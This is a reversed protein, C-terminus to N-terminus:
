YGRMRRYNAYLAASKEQEDLGKNHKYRKYLQYGGVGAALAGAGLNIKAGTTMDGIISTPVKRKLAAHDGSDLLARLEDIDEGGSQLISRSIPSNLMRKLVFKEPEPGGLGHLDVLGRGASYAGLGTLAGPMIYSARARQEEQKEALKRFVHAEKEQQRRNYAAAGLGTAAIGGGTLARTTARAGREKAIGQLREIDSDRLVMNKQALNENRIAAMREIEPIDEYATGAQLRKEVRDARGTRVRGDGLGDYLADQYEFEGLSKRNKFTGDPSVYARQVGIKDGKKLKNIKSRALVDGLAGGGLGGALAGILAGKGRNDEGGAYAGAAAGTAAGGLLYRGMPSNFSAGVGAEKKQQKNRTALLAGGAGLATGGVGVGATRLYRSLRLKDRQSINAKGKGSPRHMIGLVNKRKKLYEPDVMNRTGLHTGGLALMGGALLYPAVGYSSETPDQRESM